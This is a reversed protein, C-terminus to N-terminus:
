TCKILYRHVRKIIHVNCMDHMNSTHPLCRCSWVMENLLCTKNVGDSNISTGPCSAAMDIHTLSISKGETEVNKRDPKLAVGATHYRENKM